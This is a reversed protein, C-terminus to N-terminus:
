LDRFEYTDPNFKAVHEMFASASLEHLGMHARAYSLMLPLLHKTRKHFEQYALENDEHWLSTIAKTMGTISMFNVLAPSAYVTDSSYFLQDKFVYSFYKHDPNFCDLRVASLLALPEFQKAYANFKFADMIVPIDVDPCQAHALANVVTIFAEPYICSTPANLFMASLFCYNKADCTYTTNKKTRM